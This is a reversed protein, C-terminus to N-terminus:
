KEQAAASIEQCLPKLTRPVMTPFELSTCDSDRSFFMGAKNKLLVGSIMIYSPLHMLFVWSGIKYRQM